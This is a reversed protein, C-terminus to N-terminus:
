NIIKRFKLENMENLKREEVSSFKPTRCHDLCTSESDLILIEFKYLLKIELLELNM